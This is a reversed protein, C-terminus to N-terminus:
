VVDLVIEGGKKETRYQFGVSMWIDYIQINKDSFVYTEEEAWM